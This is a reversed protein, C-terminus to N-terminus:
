RGFDDQVRVIDDEDSPYKKDTHMWIEAIIGYEATGVLRHREGQNLNITTNLPLDEQANEEDTQSRVVAANGAIVTWIESRRHHYQWSLRQNPAVVLIKPSLKEFGQFDSLDLQSFFRKIFSEAQNESIVFFGGWPRDFDSKDIEFGEMDLFLKVSQFVEQKTYESSTTM